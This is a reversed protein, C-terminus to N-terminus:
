GSNGSAIASANSIVKRSGPGVPKAELGSNLLHTLADVARSERKREAADGPGNIHRLMLTERKDLPLASFVAGIDAVMALASTVDAADTRLYVPSQRSSYMVPDDDPLPVDGHLSSDFYFPLVARVDAPKYFYWGSHHMLEQREKAAYSVAVERLKFRVLAENLGAVREQHEWIWVWLAQAIDEAEVPAYQKGVSRAVSNAIVALEDLTWPWDVEPTM